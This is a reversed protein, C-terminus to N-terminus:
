QHRVVEFRQLTIKENERIGAKSRAISIQDQVTDIGPLNPLLLGRRHGSTVIVGYRKVDLDDQTSIDEADGLVDVSYVLEDLEDPRVPDFRPDQAGASVANQIIESAINRATASISGICGRLQGNKKLSVFVGAQKSIMDDPLGKPLQITEGRRVYAELTKRALRVYDDESEKRSELEKRQEAWYDSLFHRNENPGQPLYTCVGYGVGFPGEYSLKEAKVNLGDFCGAMIIFSHHGCEGASECYDPDFRFLELFAARGMSDMIKEDYAPGEPAFGYPGDEKLKHSLDGSAIVAINRGMSDATEKILMGLKYHDTYGLGSLGIRVIKCPIDSGYADRLFILPVLAAHDLKKDREGLTGAPLECADARRSLEAVYPADYAVELQVAGAHFQALSGKASTGPSIHFYDSFLESHPTIVIVTDPRSAAILEAAKRYADITTQIAKEQGRGVQPIILPPHPVMIASKLPMSCRRCSPRSITQQKVIQKIYENNELTFRGTISKADAISKGWHV